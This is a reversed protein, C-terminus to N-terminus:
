GRRRRLANTPIKHEFVAGGAGGTGGVSSCCAICYCRPALPLVVAAEPLVVWWCPCMGRYHGEFSRAPAQFALRSSNELELCISFRGLWFWCAVTMNSITSNNARATSVRLYYGFRVSAECEFENSSKNFQEFSQRFCLFRRKGPTCIEMGPTFYIPV